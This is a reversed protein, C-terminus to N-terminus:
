WHNLLKDAGPVREVPTGLRAFVCGDSIKGSVLPKKQSKVM